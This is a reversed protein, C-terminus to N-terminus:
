PVVKFVTGFGFKGGGETTGYLTGNLGVVLGSPSGGDKGGTFSYIVTEVGTNPNLSFVIGFNSAGGYLTTGYLMGGVNIISNPIKGSQGGFSYIVKEVATKPSLEFVTGKGYTGGVDTTGFLNGGVNILQCSPFSGDPDSSFMYVKKTAGNVPNTKFISGESPEGTVGYLFSGAQTVGEKLAPTDIGGPFSYLTTMNGNIPDIRVITGAANAGGGFTTGYLLGGVDILSGMPGGGDLGGNLSHLLVVKGTVSSIKFATGSASTGGGRTTGFLTTSFGPIPILRGTPWSGGSGGPFSYINVLAASSLTVKFITGCGVTQSGSTCALIGGTATVGFLFGGVSTLGDNPNAGDSGGSFSYITTLTGACAAPQLLIAGIAVLMLQGAKAHM